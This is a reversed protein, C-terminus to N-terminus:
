VENPLGQPSEIMLYFLLPSLPDGQLTGRRAGIPSIHGHPTISEATAGSYLNPIINIFDEQLGLLSLTLALQDHDESPFAGKLDLYCLVIDKNQTHAGEVWLHVNAIARACSSDARFGEQEPILIKRGEIYDTALM